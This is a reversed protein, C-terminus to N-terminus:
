CEFGRIKVGMAWAAQEIAQEYNREIWDKIFESSAKLNIAKGETDETAELKSFWSIDIAEGYIGILSKRVRGWLTNPLQKTGLNTKNFSQNKSTIKPMILEIKQIPTYEGNEFREHTAKVQSLVIDLEVQSLQVAKHLYIKAIDGDISISRYAKLFNYAKISELVCALKKKLHWEPSVQTSYEIETLYNEIEEAMNEEYSLNAKIKFSESNTKVADRMEYRLAKSMYSLFGKRSNFIRDTLRKSMDHLIENMANLSFERGSLRQLQSCDEKNLPYFDVLTKPKPFNKSNTNTITTRVILKEKAVSFSQNDLSLSSSTQLDLARKNKDVASSNIKLFNNNEKEELVLSNELFSSESPAEYSACDTSRDKKIKNKNSIHHYSIQLSQFKNDNSSIVNNESDEGTSYNDKVEKDGLSYPLGSKHARIDLEPQRFCSLFFEQDITIMLKNCRGGKELSINCVGRTIIGLEELRLFGRRTKEKSIFFKETFQEYSTRLTKDILTTKDCTRIALYSCSVASNSFRYLALIESLLTIATLDVRGKKDVIKKFWFHPIINGPESYSYQTTLRLFEEEKEALSLSNTTSFSRNTSGIAPKHTSISM